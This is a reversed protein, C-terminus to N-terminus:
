PVMGLEMSGETFNTGGGPDDYRGSFTYHRGELINHCRGSEDHRGGFTFRGITANPPIGGEHGSGYAARTATPPFIRPGGRLSKM